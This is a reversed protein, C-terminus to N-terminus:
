YSTQQDVNLQLYNRVFEYEYQAYSIENMQDITQKIIEELDKGFVNPGFQYYVTEVCLDPVINVKEGGEITGINLTVYGNLDPATISEKLVCNLDTMGEIANVGTHAEIINASKGHCTYKVWYHGNQGSGIYLNTPELVVFTEVSEFFYKHSVMFDQCGRVGIEEETSFFIAIDDINNSDEILRKLTAIIVANGGKMDSTGRGYIYTKDDVVETTCKLPEKTWGSGIDVTDLHGCLVVKFGLKKYAIINHKHPNKSYPVVEVILGLDNKLLSTMYQTIEEHSDKSSQSDIAVMQELITKVYDLTTSM